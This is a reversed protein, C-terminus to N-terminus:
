GLLATVEAPNLAWEYTYAEDAEDATDVIQLGQAQAKLALLKGITCKARLHDLYDTVAQADTQIAAQDQNTLELWTIEGSEVELVGFTFGKAINDDAVRVMHQVCSPDYAVGTKESIKMPHESSMWGVQLRPPMNGTSYANGTFVVYRAEAERLQPLDLEIYEATGVMDPISRIDGSHKAGTTVLNHYACIDRGKDYLIIASLDMDLYQAPLGVGWQLFLRVKDGEVHFRTGQLACSTDQITTARDGVGVPIDNLSPAIYITKSGTPQAAFHDSMVDEYLRAVEKAMEGLEQPSYLALLKNHEIAVKGGTIPSAYRRSTPDFYGEAANVLSLILRKPVGAAVKRFAQLVPQSGFRLMASFLCRAFLGPRGSLMALATDKDGLNIAQNYQSGWTTYNQNYFVDMLRALNEFGPKNSYEALRLARIFRVWMGRYPHMDAAVKEADKCLANLWTAVRRCETRNYKLRLHQRMKDRMDDISHYPGQPLLGGWKKATNIMNKPRIIVAKGTKGYWLYRLVDTPTSLYKMVQQEQGKHILAAIVVMRNEKMPIEVNAPIDMERVLVRLSDLQTADLAVPSTLLKHMVREMDAKLFLRLERLKSGQGKYVFDGTRFPTGCFPCGNYREMHFTGDPILHGCPLTTGPVAIDDKVINAFHTVLHNWLGEGTPNDWGKVLPMWNLDVNMVDNILTTIDVLTQTRCTSLAKLLDESVTFGCEALRKLMAVLPANEHLQINDIDSKTVDCYLARYRLAVRM